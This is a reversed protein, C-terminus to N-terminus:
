VKDNYVGLLELLTKYQIFGLKTRQQEKELIEVIRKRELKTGEAVGNKFDTKNYALLTFKKDVPDL